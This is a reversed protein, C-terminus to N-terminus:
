KKLRYQHFKDLFNLAKYDENQPHGALIARSINSVKLKVLDCGRLKSDIAMNFLALERINNDMQLRIRIEWIEKLKLAPKQGLIRGKNWPQRKQQSKLQTEM